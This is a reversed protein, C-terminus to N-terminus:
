PSIEFVTGCTYRTYCATGGVEATGYFNGSDDMTLGAWPSGGDSGGTFNHLVTEKRSLSLEFVTGNGSAGGFYTTGYLNGSADLVLPGTLPREGDACSSLSCFAYLVTEAWGGGSQPSLEFVTGCGTGGCQDSGGNQTTGYLNGKPDFRLVSGPNAGDSGGDFTYLVTESGSTDVEFVVGYGSNCFGAGGDSTVGYLNGASDLIVGPYPDCGDSGGAFSYLVTEKGSTDIKVVAGLGNDGGVDSTGYLNGAADEVLLATPYWGDPTGTFKHLVAEKGTNSDLKFV